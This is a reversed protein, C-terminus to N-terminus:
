NLKRNHLSVNENIIFKSFIKYWSDYSVINEYFDKSHEKIM